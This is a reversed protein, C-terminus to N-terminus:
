AAVSSAASCPSSESVRDGARAGARGPSHGSRRHVRGGHGNPHGWRRGRAGAARDRSRCGRGTAPGATSPFPGRKVAIGFMAALDDAKRGSRNLEALIEGRRQEIEDLRTAAAESVRERQAALEALAADREAVVRDADADAYAYQKFADDERRRREAEDADLRDRAAALEAVRDRVRRDTKAKGRNAM